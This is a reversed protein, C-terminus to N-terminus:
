RPAAPADRRSTARRTTRGWRRRRGARPGRAPAARPRRARLPNVEASPERSRRRSPRGRPADSAEFHGPVLLLPRGVRHAARPRPRRRAGDPVPRAGGPLGGPDLAGRGAGRLQARRAARRRRRRPGGRPLGARGPARGRRGDPRHAACRGRADRRDPRAAPGRGPAAARRLGGGRAGRRRGRPDRRAARHRARRLQDPVPGPRRAHHRVPSAAARGRPPGLDPDRAGRHRAGPAATRRRQALRRHGRRDHGPGVARARRLHILVARRVASPTGGSAVPGPAAPALPAPDSHARESMRAFALM